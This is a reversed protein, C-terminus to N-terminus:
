IGGALMKLLIEELDNKEEIFKKLIEEKSLKSNEFAEKICEEAFEEETNKTINDRIAKALFSLEMCLQAGTGNAQVTGNEFKLMTKIRV